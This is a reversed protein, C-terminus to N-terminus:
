CINGTKARSGDLQLWGGAGLRFTKLARPPEATLANLLTEVRLPAPASETRGAADAPAVRIRWGESEHRAPTLALAVVCCDCDLVENGAETPVVEPDFGTLTLWLGSLRGDALTAGALLLAESAAHIGGGVGLNFGQLNLAQSITGSVSHLSRHPILHPSLGWAGEAAFRLMAQALAVRGLYRPAALVGWDGMLGAQLGHDDTAQFVGALAAVTQEDAHKVYSPTLRNNTRASIQGRWVALADPSLRLASHGVVECCVAGVLCGHTDTPKV